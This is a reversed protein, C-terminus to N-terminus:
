KSIESNCEHKSDGTISVNCLTTKLCNIRKIRFPRLNKFLKIRKIRCPRLNKFLKIRKIRCPRLNKFLKIRKIRCPRLNKFLKIRKIRCPRLNKFLKIRKIRCPRLNESGLPRNSRATKDFKADSTKDRVAGYFLSPVQHFTIHVRLWMVCRYELMM